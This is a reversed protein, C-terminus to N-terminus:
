VEFLHLQEYIEKREKAGSIIGNADLKPRKGMIMRVFYRVPFFVWGFPLLIKWKRSVPWKKYVLNNVSIVLQRFMSIDNGVGNKGKNSLFLVEQDRNKNKAGFNGGYFIDSIMAELMEEDVNEMAWSKEDMGLFRISLQTLLQAFRWLGISQLKEQYLATFEEDSFRNAFVAWDCLHRLGIGTGTLHGSTHLLLVLGHHFDDPLVMENEAITVEKGTEIIDDLYSKAIEGVEGKPIGPPAFHLELYMSDNWYEVHFAHKEHKEDKRKLGKELLLNGARDLDQKNVLFDVDGMARLMPDPYYAASACGKLIVYPIDNKKMLNHVFSHNYNVCMNNAINHYYTKKLMMKLEDPLPADETMLKSFATPIVAQVMAEQYIMDWDPNESLPLSKQFLNNAMLALLDYEPITLTRKM